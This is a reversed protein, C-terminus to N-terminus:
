TTGRVEFEVLYLGAVLLLLGLQVAEETLLVCLDGMKVVFQLDHHPLHLVQLPLRCASASVKM